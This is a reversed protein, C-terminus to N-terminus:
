KQGRDIGGEVYAAFMPLIEELGDEISYSWNKAFFDLIVVANVPSDEDAAARLRRAMAANLIQLEKYIETLGQLDLEAEGGQRRRFYQGLVYTSAARYLTEEDSAMPLHFRAMPRFFATLPCVSTAMILGMLSSVAQQATCRSFVTRDQSTVRLEAPEYSPVDRVSAILGSLGAALPCYPHRELSLPCNPCQEFDLRAWDPRTGPEEEILRCSEPDLLVFFTERRGADLALEYTIEIPEM